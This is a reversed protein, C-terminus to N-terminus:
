LFLNKNFLFIDKITEFLNYLLLELGPFVNTLPLKFTDLIVILAVFSIIGVIIFSLIRGLYYSLSKQSKTTQSYEIKKSEKENDVFIEDKYNLNTEIKNDSNIKEEDLVKIETKLRNNSPRYFWIYNCSGCQIDRGDDPILSSNVEFKKNCNICQIIM